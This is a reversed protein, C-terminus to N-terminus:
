PQHQQSIAIRALRAQKEACLRNIAQNRFYPLLPDQGQSIYKQSLMPEMRAYLSARLRTKEEDSGQTMLLNTFNSIFINDEESLTPLPNAQKSSIDQLPPPPQQQQMAMQYKGLDQQIQRLDQPIGQTPMIVPAQRSQQDPILSSTMEDRPHSLGQLIPESPKEWQSKRTYINVYFRKAV